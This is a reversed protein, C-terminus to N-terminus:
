KKEVILDDGCNCHVVITDTDPAEGIRIECTHGVHASLMAYRSAGHYEPDLVVISRSRLPQTQLAGKKVLARIHQHITVRHCDVARGIEELTPSVEHEAIYDRIFAMIRQQKLTYHM